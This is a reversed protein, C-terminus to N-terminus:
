THSMLWNSFIPFCQHNSHLPLVKMSFTQLFIQMKRLLKQQFIVIKLSGLKNVEKEIEKITLEKFCFTRNEQTDRIALISPHHKYKLTAKFDPEKMNEIIPDFDDFIPIGPNKVINSVFKKLIEATESESKVIQEKEKFYILNIM